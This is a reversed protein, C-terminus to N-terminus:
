VDFWPGDPNVAQPAAGVGEERFANIIAARTMGSIDDNDPGLAEHVVWGAVPLRRLEVIAVGKGGAEPAYRYFYTDGKLVAWLYTRICNNFERAARALDDYSSLPRLAEVGNRVIAMTPPKPFPAQEYQKMVWDRTRGPKASDLSAMIQRDSMDTRVRRVLDIAFMVEHLDRPRKILRVVAMSRYEAPLRTLTLVDRRAIAKRHRLVKRASDESFLMALRRYTAARWVGGALKPALKVISPSVAPGSTDLFATLLTRRALVGYSRAFAALHDADRAKSGMLAIVLAIFHLEERPIHLVRAAFSQNHAAIAEIAPTLWGYAAGFAPPGTNEVPAARPRAKGIQHFTM